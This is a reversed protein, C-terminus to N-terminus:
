LEQIWLPRHGDYLGERYNILIIETMKGPDINVIFRDITERAIFMGKGHEDMLGISLGDAGKTTNRELWYLIDKKTLRGKKDCVAAGCKEEDCAWSVTVEDAKELEGDFEWRDKRDGRENRAGYFFANVAIEGLSQRMKRQQLPTPLTSVVTNIVKEIEDARVISVTNIPAHIYRDLGFVDGTMINRVLIRVEEFNFPTTKTIINGINYNKAYNLYDRVDYATILARRLTPQRRSAEALLEYGKMGPMNIDSLLLDFPEADLFALAESANAATTVTYGEDTLFEGIIDLFDPEDDVLLINNSM